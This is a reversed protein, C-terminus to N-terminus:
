EKGLHRYLLVPHRAQHGEHGEEADEGEGVQDGVLGQALIIAGRAVGM